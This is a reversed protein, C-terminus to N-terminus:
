HRRRVAITVVLALAGVVGGLVMRARNRDQPPADSGVADQVLKRGSEVARTANAKPDLRDTLEDVTEALQRRTAALEAELAVTRPTAFTGNKDSM